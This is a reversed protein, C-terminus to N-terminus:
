IQGEEELLEEHITIAARTGEAAAIIVFQMDRTADGAAYLDKVCTRERQDAEITGKSSFDCGLQHAIESRQHQGTTFFIASREIFGRTHFVIKELMGDTHELEEIRDAYVVIGREHLREAQQKSLKTPGNTLLVVDNSWSLLRQSLMFGSTGKGIVGIPKDRWEWGDCYPCHHMSKGYIEEAGKIMPVEDTVGTALLLKKSHYVEGNLLTVKFSTKLKKASKVETDIVPVGYPELQERGLQLLAYPSTRDRTFFGHVEHAKANRPRGHDFVIVNRRCRGLWLAASLGAPGGGIIIVDYLM